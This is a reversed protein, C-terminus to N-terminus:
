GAAPRRWKRPWGPEENGLVLAIRAPAAGAPPPKAAQVEQAERTAAGIVEYGADALDRLFALLRPVARVELAELGGEAVRYAADIPGRRPRIPPSAILRPIGFFAASRAM